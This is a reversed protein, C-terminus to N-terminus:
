SGILLSSDVDIYLNKILQYYVKHVCTAKSVYSFNVLADM